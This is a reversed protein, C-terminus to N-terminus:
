AHLLGKHRLAQELAPQMKMAQFEEIAFDLHERAEAQRQKAIGEGEAEGEPPPSLLIEALQLRILAVEPRFRMRSASKLGERYLAEAREPEGLLAAAAARHRIQWTTMGRTTIGPPTGTLWTTLRAVTELVGLLLAARLMAGMPGVEVGAAADDDAGMRALWGNVIALSQAHEGMHVLIVAESGESLGHGLLAARMQRLEDLRGQYILPEVCVGAGWLGGLRSMGMEEGREILRHGLTIAEDLRGDLTALIGEWRLANIQVFADGARRALEGLERWAAEARERDGVSAHAIGVFELFQGITRTSAGTRPSSALENAVEMAERWHQLTFSGRIFQWVWTLRLETDELGSSAGACQAASRHKPRRRRRRERGPGPRRRRPCPRRNGAARLRRRAGGM